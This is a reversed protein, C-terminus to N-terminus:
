ESVVTFGAQAFHHDNTLVHRIGLREMLVMSMCDVHSFEKDPRAAFRDLGAIFLERHVSRVDYSQIAHRIGDVAVKRAYAGEESFFALVETLVADHTVVPITGLRRAVRLAQGHHSDRRDYLAILFWADAFYTHM